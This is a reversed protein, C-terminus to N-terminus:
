GLDTMSGADGLIASAMRGPFRAKQASEPENKPLIASM